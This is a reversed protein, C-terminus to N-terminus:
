FCLSHSILSLRSLLIIFHYWLILDLSCNFISMLVTKVSCAAIVGYYGLQLQLLKLSILLLVLLLLFLSLSLPLLQNNFYTISDINSSHVTYPINIRHLQIINRMKHSNTLIKPFLTLITSSISATTLLFLIFTLVIAKTFIITFILFSLIM